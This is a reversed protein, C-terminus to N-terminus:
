KIMFHEDMKEIQTNIRRGDRQGNMWRDTHGDRWKETQEETLGGRRVRKM